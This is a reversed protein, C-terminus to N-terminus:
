GQPPGREGRMWFKLAFPLTFSILLFRALHHAGVYLPDIGLAFALLTMAELGGPSFALLTQAFPLSLALGALVAFLGSIGVAVFFTGLAALALIPANGVVTFASPVLLM